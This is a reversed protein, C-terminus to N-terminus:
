AGREKKLINQNEEVVMEDATKLTSKVKALEIVCVREDLKLVKHKARAFIWANTWGAVNLFEDIPFIGSQSHSQLLVFVILKLFPLM